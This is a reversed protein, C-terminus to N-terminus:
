KEDRKEYMSDILDFLEADDMDEEIEEVEDKSNGITVEEEEINDINIVDEEENMEDFIDDNADVLEEERYDSYDNIILDDEKIVMDELLDDKVKQSVKKEIEVVEPKILNLNIEDELTSQSRKKTEEKVVSKSSSFIISNIDKDTKKIINEAKYNQDLIGYVPSIIPSVKFQKRENMKKANGYIENRVPRNNTKNYNNRTPVPKPEPRVVPQPKPVPQQAFLKQDENIFDKDDFFLPKPEVLQETKVEVEEKVEPKAPAKIEVHMVEKKVPEIYEEEEKFFDKVKDLFGM